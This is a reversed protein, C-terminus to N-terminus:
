RTKRGHRQADYSLAAIVKGLEASTCFELRDKKCIRKCLAVAYSWPRKAEALLAEIKQMQPRGDTTNPRGPHRLGIKWRTLHDLVKGRGEPTLDRASDVGAVTQLMQRYAAEDLGPIQSKLIHIKALESRRIDRAM